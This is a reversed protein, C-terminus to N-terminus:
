GEDPRSVLCNLEHTMFLESAFGSGDALPLSTINYYDLDEKAVRITTGELLEHWAQDLEPSPVAAFSTGPVTLPFVRSERRFATSKALAKTITLMHPLLLRRLVYM